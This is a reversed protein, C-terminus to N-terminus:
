LEFCYWKSNSGVSTRVVLLNNSLAPLARYTGTPLATKWHPRFGEPSAPCYWLRGDLGVLLLDTAAAGEGGATDGAGGASVGEPASAGKPDLAITHCIPLGAEVWRTQGTAADICRYSPFGGDERGDSGFIWNQVAVPTAYQSSISDGKELIRVEDPDPKVIVFGIGYSATFFLQGQPIQIPTAANVTPGRQGFPFQWRVDGNRPDLGYTALRTPVVVTKLGPRTTSDILIPSAYSADADTSQWLNKGDALNVAVVGAKKRGGVTVIVSNGVILPTSGAGFYGDEAGFEKRLARTWRKKGDARALCHLVGGASYVLVSDKTIQPVCRPGTDSDIGRQYTASFTTRWLETGDALSVLRVVDLSDERQFLAVQGELIAAGAYGQGADLEWKLKPPTEGHDIFEVETRTHGNRKPGLIEPWDAQVESSTFSAAVLSVAFILGSFGVRLVGAACVVSLNSAGLAARAGDLWASNGFGLPTNCIMWM